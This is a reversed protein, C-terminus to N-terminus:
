EDVMGDGHESSIFTGEGLKLKHLDNLVGFDNYNESKNLLLEIKPLKISSFEKEIKYKELFSYYWPWM